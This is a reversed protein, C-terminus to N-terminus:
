TTIQNTMFITYKLCSIDVSAWIPNSPVSIRIHITADLLPHNSIPQFSRSNVSEAEVIGPNELISVVSFFNASAGTEQDGVLSRM